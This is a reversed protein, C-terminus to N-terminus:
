FHTKYARASHAHITTHPTQVTPVFGIQFAHLYFVERKRVREVFSQAPRASKTRAYIATHIACHTCTLHLHTQTHTNRTRYYSLNCVIGVTTAATTTTMSTSPTSAREFEYSYSISILGYFFLCLIESQNINEIKKLKIMLRSFHLIFPLSKVVSRSFIGHVLLNEKPKTLNRWSLKEHDVENIDWMVGIRM